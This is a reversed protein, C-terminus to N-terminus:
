QENMIWNINMIWEQENMIWGEIKRMGWELNIWENNM